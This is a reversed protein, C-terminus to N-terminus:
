VKSVTLGTEFSNQYKGLREICGLKIGNVAGCQPLSPLGCCSTDKLIYIHPVDSPCSNSQARNNGAQDFIGEGTEGDFAAENTVISADQDVFHDNNQSSEVVDVGLNENSTDEISDVLGNHSWINAATTGPLASTDCFMKMGDEVVDFHITVSLGEGAIRTHMDFSLRTGVPPSTPTDIPEQEINPPSSTMCPIECESVCSSCSDECTTACRSGIDDDLGNSNGFSLDNDSALSSTCASVCQCECTSCLSNCVEGCMENMENQITELNPLSQAVNQSSSDLSEDLTLDNNDSSENNLENPVNFAECQFECISCTSQCATQCASAMVMGCNETNEISRYSGMLPSSRESKRQMFLEFIKFRSSYWSILSIVGNKNLDSGGNNFPNGAICSSECESVCSSCALQCPSESESGSSEPNMVNSSSSGDASNDPAVDGGGSEVISGGMSVETSIQSLCDNKCDTECSLCTPPCRVFPDECVYEDFAENSNCATECQCQCTSCMTECVNECNAIQSGQILNQFIQGEESELADQLNLQNNQNNELLPRYFANMADCQVQCTSSVDQCASICASEVVMECNESLGLDKTTQKSFSSRESIRQVFPEFFKYKKAYWSTLSVVYKKNVDNAANSLPTGVVCSSECESAAASCKSCDAAFFNELGELSDEFDNSESITTPRHIGTVDGDNEDNSEQITHQITFAAEDNENVSEEVSNAENINSIQSLCNPLCQTECNQCATECNLGSSHLCEDQDSSQNSEDCASNCQCECTSCMADCSSECVSSLESRDLKSRVLDKIHWVISSRTSEDPVCQLGCEYECVSCISQCSTVCASSLTSRCENSTATNDKFTQQNRWYAKTLNSATPNAGFFFAFAKSRSLPSKESPILDGELTKRDVGTYENPDENAECAYECESECRACGSLCQTACDTISSEINYGSFINSMKEIGPPNFGKDEFGSSDKLLYLTLCFSTFLSIFYRM